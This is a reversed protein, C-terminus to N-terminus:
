DDGFLDKLREQPSKKQPTDDDGFLRKSVVNPDTSKAPPNGLVVYEECYNNLERDAIHDTGPIVCDNPLGPRYNVCNRCCHQWANCTKCTARFSVKGLPFDISAGCKWCFMPAVSAALGGSGHAYHGDDCDGM